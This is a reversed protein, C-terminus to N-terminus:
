IKYINSTVPALNEIKKKKKWISFNLHHREGYQFDVIFQLKTQRCLRSPNRLKSYNRQGRLSPKPFNAKLALM